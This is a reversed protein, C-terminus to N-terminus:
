YLSKIPKIVIYELGVIQKLRKIVYKVFKKM